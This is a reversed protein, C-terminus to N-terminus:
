QLAKPGNNIHWPLADLTILQGNTKSKNRLVDM